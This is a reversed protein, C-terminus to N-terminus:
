RQRGLAKAAAVYVAKAAPDAYVSQAFATAARMRDRRERQAATPVYGAFCPVRTVIIKDGYTKYIRDGVRGRFAVCLPGLM